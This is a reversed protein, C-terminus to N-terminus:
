PVSPRVPVGTYPPGDLDPPLRRLAPTAGLFLPAATRLLDVNAAHHNRPLARSQMVLLTSRLQRSSWRYESLAWAHRNLISAMNRRHREPSAKTRTLSDAAEAAQLLVAVQTPTLLSDAPPTYTRENVIMQRLTTTPTQSFSGGLSMSAQTLFQRVVVILLVLAAVVLVLFIWRGPRRWHPRHQRDPM